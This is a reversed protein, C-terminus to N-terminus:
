PARVELISVLIERSVNRGSLVVVVDGDGSNDDDLRLSGSMIAAVGAVGSPEAVLGHEFALFRMAEKLADDDVGVISTTYRAALGVTVSGPEINGALGDAITPGIEIPVTAGTTVATSLAPSMKAEVGHVDVSHLGNASSTSAAAFGIGAILGGGGIPAIVSTLNPVQDFLEGAITAQGAIVDPDNYASIFHAGSKSQEIGYAEAEDYTDGHEILEVDFRKLAERKAASVTTPVVITAKAGLVACGFAVGLGANGASAALIRADPEKDLIRSVAALGGRVKFSGTPQLTELKLWVREGLAPIRIVPTPPLHQAVIQAAAALDDVDPERVQRVEV